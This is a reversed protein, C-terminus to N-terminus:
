PTDSTCNQVVSRGWNNSNSIAVKLVHLNLYLFAIRSTVVVSCINQGYFSCLSSFAPGRCPFDAGDISIPQSVGCNKCGWKKWDGYNKHDFCKCHLGILFGCECIFFRLCDKTKDGIICNFCKWNILSKVWASELYFWRSNKKGIYCFSLFKSSCSDGYFGNSCKCSGDEQCTGHGSCTTAPDCQVTILYLINAKLNSHWSTLSKEFFM